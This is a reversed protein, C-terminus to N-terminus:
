KRRNKVLVISIFSFACALTILLLAGLVSVRSYIFRVFYLATIELCIVLMPVAKLLRQPKFFKKIPTQKDEQSKCFGEM